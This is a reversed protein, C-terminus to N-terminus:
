GNSERCLLGELVRTQFDLLCKKFEEELNEQVSKVCDNLIDRTNQYNFREKTSLATNGYKTILAKMGMEYAKECELLNEGSVQDACNKYEKYYHCVEAHLNEAQNSNESFSVSCFTCIIGTLLFKIHKM